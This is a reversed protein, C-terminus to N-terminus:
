GVAAADAGEEAAVRKGDDYDDGCEHTFSGDEDPYFHRMSHTSLNGELTNVIETGAPSSAVLDGLFKVKKTKTM